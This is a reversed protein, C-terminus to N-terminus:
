CQCIHQPSIKVMWIKSTTGSPLVRIKLSLMIKKFCLCSLDLSAQIGLVLEIQATMEIYYRSTVTVCVYVPM